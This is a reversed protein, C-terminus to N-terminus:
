RWRRMELSRVTLFLCFLAVSVYFVLYRTDVLGRGFDQSFHQPRWLGVVLLGLGFVVSLLAAVMQSRVLSSVLMGLALFMAGALALGLYSAVVPWPDINGGSTIEVMWPGQDFHHHHLAGM